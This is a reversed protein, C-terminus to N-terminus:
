WVGFSPIITPVFDNTFTETDIPPGTLTIEKTLTAEYFRGGEVTIVTVGFSSQGFPNTRNAVYQFGAQGTPLQYPDGGQYEFYTDNQQLSQFHIAASEEFNLDTSLVQVVLDTNTQAFNATAHFRDRPTEMGPVLSNPALIMWNIPRLIRWRYDEFVMWSYGPPEAPYQNPQGQQLTPSRDASGELGQRRDAGGGSTEGKSESASMTEGLGSAATLGAFRLFQRRSSRADGM